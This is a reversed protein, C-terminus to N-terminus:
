ANEFVEMVEDNEGRIETKCVAGGATYYVLYPKLVPIVTFNQRWRPEPSGLDSGGLHAYVKQNRFWSWQDRDSLGLAGQAATRLTKLDNRM